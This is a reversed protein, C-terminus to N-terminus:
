GIVVRQIKDDDDDDDDDSIAVNVDEKLIAGLAKGEAEPELSLIPTSFTL